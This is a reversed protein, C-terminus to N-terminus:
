RPAEEDPEVRVSCAPPPADDPVVVPTATKTETTRQRLEVKAATEEAASREALVGVVFGVFIWLATLAVAVFAGNWNTRM